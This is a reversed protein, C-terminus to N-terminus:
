PNKFMAAWRCSELPYKGMATEDSLVFGTYGCTLTDYLYCAESRTPLSHEVMHELVQGAMLVPVKLQDPMLSFRHVTEAMARIGLEAGLDGRCLWLEDAVNEIGPADDVASQREIKAILYAARGCLFRYRAMEQADKVYSIAYRVFDLSSTEELIVRDKDSLSENRFAGSATIGKRPSIKGGQIVSITLRDPSFSEIKLRIRADNLQIEESSGQAASFFDAHPVPIVGRRHSTDALILDIRQGQKLYCPTFDGLRWKSGQLDLILPTNNEFSSRYARIRDLWTRVAPLSLHSTNLRFATVGAAIMAKWAAEDNSSPGLTAVIQYDM